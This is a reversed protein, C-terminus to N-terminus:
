IEHNIISLNTQNFDVMLCTTPNDRLISLLEEDSFQGSDLILHTCKECRRKRKGVAKLDDWEIKFPCGLKKILEGNDTYLSNTKLNFIM